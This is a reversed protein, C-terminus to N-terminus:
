EVGNRTARIITLVEGPNLIDSCFSSWAVDITSVPASSAANEVAKGQDAIAADMAPNTSVNGTITNEQDSSPESGLEAAEGSNSGATQVVADQVL